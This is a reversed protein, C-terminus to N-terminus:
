WFRALHAAPAPARTPTCTRRTARMRSACCGGGAPVAFWVQADLVFVVQCRMTASAPKVFRSGPMVATKCLTRSPDLTFGRVHYIAAAGGPIRAPPKASPCARSGSGSTRPARNRFHFRRRRGCCLLMVHSCSSNAIMKQTVRDAVDARSASTAPSCRSQPSIPVTPRWVAASTTGFRSSRGAAGCCAFCLKM